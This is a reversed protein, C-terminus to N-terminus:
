RFRRFMHMRTRSCARHPPTTLSSTTLRGFATPIRDCFLLRLKHKRVPTWDVGHARKRVHLAYDGAATVNYAGAYEGAGTYAVEGTSVLFSGDGDGDDVSFVEVQFDGTSGSSVRNGM